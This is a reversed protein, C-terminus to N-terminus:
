RRRASRILSTVHGILQAEEELLATHERSGSKARQREAVVEKLRRMAEALSDSGHRRLDTV